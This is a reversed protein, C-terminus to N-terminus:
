CDLGQPRRDLLQLLLNLLQLLAQDAADTAAVGLIAHAHDEDTRRTGTHGVRKIRM